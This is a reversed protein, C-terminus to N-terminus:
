SSRRSTQSTSICKGANGQGVSTTPDSKRAHPGSLAQARVFGSGTESGSGWWCWSDGKGSGATCAHRGLGWCADWLERTEEGALFSSDEGVGEGADRQAEDGHGLGEVSCCWSVSPSKACRPCQFIWVHATQFGGGDHQDWGCRMASAHVLGSLYSAVEGVDRRAVPYARSSRMGDLSATASEARTAYNVAKLPRPGGVDVVVALIQGTM